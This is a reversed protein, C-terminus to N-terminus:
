KFFHNYILGVEINTLRLNFVRNVPFPEVTPRFIEDINQLMDQCDKFVLLSRNGELTLNFNKDLKYQLLM